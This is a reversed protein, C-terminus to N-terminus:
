ILIRNGDELLLYNDPIIVSNGLLDPQLLANMDCLEKNYIDIEWNEDCCTTIGYKMRKFLTYIAEAYKVNISESGCTYCSSCTEM